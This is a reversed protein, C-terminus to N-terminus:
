LALNRWDIIAPKPPKNGALCKEFFAGVEDPAVTNGLLADLSLTRKQMLDLLHNLNAKLADQCDEKAPPIGCALLQLQKEYFHQSDLPNFDPPPEGRGPFGLVGIKTNPSTLNLMEQWASWPNATAIIGDVRGDFYEKILRRADKNSSCAANAGLKAALCTQTPRNGVAICHLGLAKIVAVACLGITGLGFVLASKKEHLDLTQVAALALQCFYILSATESSISEPIVCLAGKESLTGGSEHPQHSFVRQGVTLNKVCNGTKAIRSICCYGLVRPYPSVTPRLPPLGAYAALETGLSIASAESKLLIQDEPLSDSFERNELRLIRPADLIFRSFVAM